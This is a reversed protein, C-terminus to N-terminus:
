HSFSHTHTRAHTLTRTTTPSHVHTRGHMHTHTRTHTHTHSPPRLSDLYMTCAYPTPTLAGTMTINRIMAGDERESIMITNIDGANVVPPSAAPYFAGSTVWNGVTGGSHLTTYPSAGNLSVYVSDDNGNILQASSVIVFNVATAQSCTFYFTVNGCVGDANNADPVGTDSCGSHATGQPSYVYNGGAV